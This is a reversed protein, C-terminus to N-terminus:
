PGLVAAQPSFASCLDPTTDAPITDTPITDGHITDTPITDVPPINIQASISDITAELEKIKGEWIADRESLLSEVRDNIFDQLFKEDVKDALFSRHAYLAYPVSLLQSTVSITKGNLEAASRIFFPGNSWDITNFDYTTM